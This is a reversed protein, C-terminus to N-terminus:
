LLFHNNNKIFCDIIKKHIFIINYTVKNKKKIQKMEM